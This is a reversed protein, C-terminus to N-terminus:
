AGCIRHIMSAIRLRRSATNTVMFMRFCFSIMPPFFFFSIGETEETELAELHDANPIRDAESTEVCAVERAVERAEERAVDPAEEFAVERAEECAVERAEECGAELAEECSGELDEECDGELVGESGLFYVGLHAPGSHGTDGRNGM